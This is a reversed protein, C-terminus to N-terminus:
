KKLLPFRHSRVDDTLLILKCLKLAKFKIELKEKQDIDKNLLKEILM